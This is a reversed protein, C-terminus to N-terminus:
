DPHCQSGVSHLLPTRLRLEGCDAHVVPVGLSGDCTHRLSADPAVFVAADIVEEHEALLASADELAACLSRQSRLCVDNEDIEDDKREDDDKRDDDQRMYMNYMYENVNRNESKDLVSLDSAVVVSVDAPAAFAYAPLPSIESGSTITLPTPGAYESADMAVSITGFSGQSSAM